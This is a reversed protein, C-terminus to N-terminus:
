VAALEDDQAQEMHYLQKDFGAPFAQGSVARAVDSLPLQRSNM